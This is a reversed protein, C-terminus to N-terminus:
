KDYMQDLAKNLTERMNDLGNRPDLSELDSIKVKGGSSVTTNTDVRGHDQRDKLVAEQVLKEIDETKLTADPPSLIEQAKRLATQGLETNGTRSMEDLLTRTEGLREDTQWNIDHSDSLQGLESEVQASTMESKRRAAMTPLLIGIRESRSVDDMSQMDILNALLEEVRGLAAKTELGDRGQTKITSGQRSLKRQLKKYEEMAITEPEGGASADGTEDSDAM